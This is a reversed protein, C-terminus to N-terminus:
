LKHSGWLGESGDLADSTTAGALGDPWWVSERGDEWSAILAKHVRRCDGGGRRSSGDIPDATAELYHTYENYLNSECVYIVPLTWLAAMNMVEYLLGQGLAGDGFFCAAM